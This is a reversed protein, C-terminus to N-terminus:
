PMRTFGSEGSLRSCSSVCYMAMLCCGTWWFCLDASGEGTQRKGKKWKAETKDHRSPNPLKKEGECSVMQSKERRIFSVTFIVNEGGCKREMRGTIERREGRKVKQGKGGRDLTRKPKAALFLRGGAWGGGGRSSCMIRNEQPHPFVPEHLETKEKM